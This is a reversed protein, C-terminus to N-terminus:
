TITIHRLNCNIQLQVVLQYQRQQLVIVVTVRINMTCTVAPTIQELGQTNMENALLANIGPTDLLLEELQQNPLQEAWIIAHQDVLWLAVSVPLHTPGALSWGHGNVM